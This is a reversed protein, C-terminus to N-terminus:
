RKTSAHGGFRPVRREGSWGSRGKWKGVKIRIASQGSRDQCIGNQAGKGIRSACVIDEVVQMDEVDDVSAPRIEGAGRQRGASFGVPESSHILSALEVHVRAVSATATPHFFSLSLM